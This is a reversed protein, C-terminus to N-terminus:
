QSEDIVTSSVSQGSVIVDVIVKGASYIYFYVKFEQIFFAQDLLGLDRRCRISLTECVLLSLM